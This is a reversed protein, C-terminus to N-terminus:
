QRDHRRDRYGSMDGALAKANSLMSAGTTVSNDTGGLLVVGAGNNNVGPSGGLVTSGDAIDIDIKGGGVINPGDLKVSQAVIAQADSGGVQLSGSVDM